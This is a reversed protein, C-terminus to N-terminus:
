FLQAYARLSGAARRWALMPAPSSLVYRLPAAYQEYPLLRAGAYRIARLAIASSELRSPQAYARLSGAARRWALM